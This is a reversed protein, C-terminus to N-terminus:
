KNKSLMNKEMNNYRIQEHLEHPRVTPRNRSFHSNGTITVGANVKLTCPCKGGEEALVAAVGGLGACGLALLSFDLM